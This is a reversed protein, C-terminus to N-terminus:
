KDCHIALGLMSRVNESWVAEAGSVKPMASNYRPKFKDIYLRELRDLHAEPCEMVFVRSFLKTAEFKHNSLRTMINTSQGVYVIEDDQLLFYVGVIRDFSMARRTIFGAELLGREDAEAHPKSLRGVKEEFQAREAHENAWKAYAIAEAEPMQGLTTSRKSVPSRYTYYGPRPEYLGKPWHERGKERKASM